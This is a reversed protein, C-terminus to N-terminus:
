LMQSHSRSDYPILVRKLIRRFKERKTCSDHLRQVDSKSSVIRTASMIHALRMCRNYAFTTGDLDARLLANCLELLPNFDRPHYGENRHGM